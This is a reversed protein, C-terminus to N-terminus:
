KPCLSVFPILKIPTVNDLTALALVGVALKETFKELTFLAEYCPHVSQFPHGVVISGWTSVPKSEPHGSSQFFNGMKKFLLWFQELALWVVM